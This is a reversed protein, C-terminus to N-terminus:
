SSTEKKIQDLENRKQHWYYSAIIISVLSVIACAVIFTFATTKDPIESTVLDWVCAAILAIFASAVSSWLTVQSNCISITNLEHEQIPYIKVKRTGHVPEYVAGQIIDKPEPTSSM